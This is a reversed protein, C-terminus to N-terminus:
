TPDALYLSQLIEKESFPIKKNGILQYTEHGKGALALIEGDVANKAAHVIAEARDPIAQYPTGHKDLVAAIEALIAEPNEQGPNDSTLIAFDALSAAHALESRRVQSREGVSGFLVTLRKPSYERLTTLLQTLSEGNHAYDIVALAGGPLRLVESRGRVCVSKLAKAALTLSVGFAESAVAIALLANEMNMRGMLPLSCLVSDGRHAVTFSIGLSSATRLPLPRQASYDAAFGTSCLCIRAARAGELIAQTSPDDANGVALMAKFDRFLRQKCTRYHEFSPHELTGIHDNYLNTFVLAEFITGDARYQMLAQSSVEIVAVRVGIDCMARLTKQLTLADPTTNNTELEKGAYSIGNTGIYGCSHGACELIHRILHATTTKGKTGTIGILKMEHSPNGFRRCALASLTRRSDDTYLVCADPPLSIKEQAVFVRCGRAYANAALSHGNTRSGKICVFVSSVDAHSARDTVDLIERTPISASPFLDGFLDTSKM